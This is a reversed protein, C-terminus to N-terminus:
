LDDVQSLPQGAEAGDGQVDVPRGLRLVPLPQEVQRPDAGCPHLVHVARGVHDVQAVLDTSPQSLTIPFHLGNFLIM